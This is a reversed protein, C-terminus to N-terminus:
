GLSILFCLKWSVLYFGEPLACICYVLIFAFRLFVDIRCLLFFFFSTSFIFHHVFNSLEYNAEVVLNILYYFFFFFVLIIMRFSIPHFLFHRSFKQSIKNFDFHHFTICALRVLFFAEWLLFCQFPFIYIPSPPLPPSLASSFFKKLTPPRPNSAVKEM